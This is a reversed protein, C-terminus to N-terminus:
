GGVENVESFYNNMMDEFLEGQTVERQACETNFMRKLERPLGRINISTLEKENNLKTRVASRTQHTIKKKISTDKYKKLHRSPDNLGLDDVCEGYLYPCDAISMSHLSTNYVDASVEYDDMRALGTDTNGVELLSVNKLIYATCPVSWVHAINHYDDSYAVFIYTDPEYANSMGFSWRNTNHLKSSKVNIFGYEAEHYLDCPHNFSVSLNCDHRSEICLAKAVVQESIFGKGASSKSSLDGTKYKSEICDCGNKCVTNIYCVYCTDM